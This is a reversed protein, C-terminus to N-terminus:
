IHILSLEMGASNTMFEVVLLSGWAIEIAISLSERLRAMM